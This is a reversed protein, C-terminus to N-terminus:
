FSFVAKQSYQFDILILIIMVQTDLSYLILVFITCSCHICSFFVMKIQNCSSFQYKTPLIFNQHPSGVPPPNRWTPSILFNEGPPPPSGWYPFGQLFLGSAHFLHFLLKIESQGTERQSWALRTNWENM